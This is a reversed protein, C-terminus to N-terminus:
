CYLGHLLFRYNFFLLLGQDGPILFVGCGRHDGIHGKNLPVVKVVRKVRCDGDIILQLNWKTDSYVPANAAKVVM